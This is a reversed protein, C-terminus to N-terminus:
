GALDRSLKQWTSDRSIPCPASYWLLQSGRGCVIHLADGATAIAVGDPVEKGLVGGDGFLVLPDSFDQLTIPHADRSILLLKESGSPLLLAIRDDPLRAISSSAILAHAPEERQAGADSPAANLLLTSGFSLMMAHFFKMLVKQWGGSVARDYNAAPPVDAQLGQASPRHVYPRGSLDDGM